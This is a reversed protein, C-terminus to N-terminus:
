PAQPAGSELPERKAISAGIRCALSGMRSRIQRTAIPGWGPTSCTLEIRTGSAGSPACVTEAKVPSITCCLRTPDETAAIRHGDDALIEWELARFATRVAEAAGQPDIDLNVKVSRKAM